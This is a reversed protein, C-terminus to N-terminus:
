TDQGRGNRALVGQRDPRQAYSYGFNLTFLWAKMQIGRDRGKDIAEALLDRREYGRVNVVSPWITPNDAQPLLVQGGYFAEVFVQNYGLNVIRDLVADLIGPQLDCPYLRLWIAQQNPWTRSRCAQLQHTHERVLQWYTQQANADGEFAAKRLAEKHLAEEQSVQCYSNLAVAPRSELYGLWGLGIGFVIVGQILPRCTKLRRRRLGQM